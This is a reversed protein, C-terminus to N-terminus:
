LKLNLIASLYLKGTVFRIIYLLSNQWFRSSVLTLWIQILYPLSASIVPLICTNPLPKTFQIKLAVLSNRNRNRTINNLVSNTHMTNSYRELDILNARQYRSNFVNPLGTALTM